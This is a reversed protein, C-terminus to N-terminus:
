KTKKNKHTRHLELDNINEIYLELLFLLLFCSYVFIYIM